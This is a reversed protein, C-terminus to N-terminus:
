ARAHAAVHRLSAVRPPQSRQVSSARREAAAEIFGTTLLPLMLGLVPLVGLLDKPLAWAVALLLAINATVALVAWRRVKSLNQRDM